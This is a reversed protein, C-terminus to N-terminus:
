EQEEQTRAVTGPCCFWSIGGRIIIATSAPATDPIDHITSREEKNNEM